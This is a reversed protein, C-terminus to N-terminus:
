EFLEEFHVGIIDAIGACDALGVPLLPRNDDYFFVAKMSGRKDITIFPNKWLFDRVNPTDRSVNLVVRKTSFHNPPVKIETAFRRKWQFTGKSVFPETGQFDVEDVDQHEAAWRLLFFYISKFTGDSYYEKSGDLVGILRLTIRRKRPNWHCVAGAVVVGADMLKFTRGRRYLNQLASDRGETRERTGYRAFMTPRYFVDYFQEFWARSDDEVWEWDHARRARNHSTRERSSIGRQVAEWNQTTDVVFHLRMPLVFSRAPLQARLRRRETGILSIDAAPRPLRSQRWQRTPTSSKNAMEGLGRQEETFELTYRAGEPLGAYSISLDGGSSDIYVTRRGPQLDLLEHLWQLVKSDSNRWAYLLWLGLKPGIRRLETM